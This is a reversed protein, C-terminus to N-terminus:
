NKMTKYKFVNLIYINFYMLFMHFKIPHVPRFLEPFAVFIYKFVM